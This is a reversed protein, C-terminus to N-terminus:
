FLVLPKDKFEPPLGFHQDMFRGMEGLTKESLLNTILEMGQLSVMYPMLNLYMQQGRCQAYIQFENTQDLPVETILCNQLWEEPHHPDANKLASRRNFFLTHEFFFREIKQISEKSVEKQNREACQSCMAYEFIVDEVGYGPYRKICKEIFYQIEGDLLYRNCDICKEFLGGTLFSTFVKPIPVSEELSMLECIVIASLTRFNSIILM